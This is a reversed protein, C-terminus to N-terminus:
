GFFAIIINVILTVAFFAGVCVKAVLDRKAERTNAGNRGFFTDSNGGSIASNIGSNRTDTVMVVMVIAVCALVLLAGSIIFLVNM